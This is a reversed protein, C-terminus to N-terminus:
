VLTALTMPDPGELVHYFPDARNSQDEMEDRESCDTDIVIELDSLGHNLSDHIRNSAYSADRAINGEQQPIDIRAM